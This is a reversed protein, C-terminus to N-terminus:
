NSRWGRFAELLEREVGASLEDVPLHGLLRITARMQKLRTRAAPPQKAFYGRVKVAQKTAM